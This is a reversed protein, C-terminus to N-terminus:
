AKLCIGCYMFNGGKYQVGAVLVKEAMGCFSTGMQFQCLLASLTKKNILDINYIILLGGNVWGGGEGGKGGGGLEGRRPRCALKAPDDGLM